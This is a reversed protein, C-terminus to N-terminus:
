VGISRLEETEVAFKNTSIIKDKTESNLKIPNSFEIYKVGFVDRLVTANESNRNAIIQGCGWKLFLRATSGGGRRQLVLYSCSAVLLNYATPPLYQLQM